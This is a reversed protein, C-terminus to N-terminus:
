SFSGLESTARWLTDAPGSIFVVPRRDRRSFYSPGGSSIRRANQGISAPFSWFKGDGTEGVPIDRYQANVYKAGHMDGIGPYFWNMVKITTPHDRIWDFDAPRAYMVMVHTVGMDRYWEYVSAMLVDTNRFIASTDCGSRRCWLYPENQRTLPDGYIAIDFGCAFEVALLIVLAAAFLFSRQPEAERQPDTM